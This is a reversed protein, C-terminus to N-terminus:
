QEGSTVPAIHLTFIMSEGDWKPTVPFSITGHVIEEGCNDLWDVNTCQHVDFRGTHRAPQADFSEVAHTPQDGDVAFDAYTECDCDFVAHCPSQHPASCQMSYAPAGSADFNITVIHDHGLVSAADETQQAM